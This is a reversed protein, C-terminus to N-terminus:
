DTFACAIFLLIVAPIFFIVPSFAGLNLLSTYCKRIKINFSTLWGILLGFIFILVDLFLIVGISIVIITFGLPLALPDSDSTVGTCFTLFLYVITGIINIIPVILYAINKIEAVNSVFNKNCYTYNSVKNNKDNQFDKYLKSDLFSM